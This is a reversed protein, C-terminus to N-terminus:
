AASAIVRRPKVVYAGDLASTRAQKPRGTRYQNPGYRHGYQALAHSTLAAHNRPMMQRLKKRSLPKSEPAYWDWSRTISNFRQTAKEVVIFTTSM